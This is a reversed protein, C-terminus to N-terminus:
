YHALLGGSCGSSEVTITVVEGESAKKLAQGVSVKGEPSSIGEGSAGAFIMAIPYPDLRLEKKL